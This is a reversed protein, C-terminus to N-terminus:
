SEAVKKGYRIAQIDQTVKRAPRANSCLFGVSMFIEVSRFKTVFDSSEKGDMLRKHTLIEQVRALLLLWRVAAHM